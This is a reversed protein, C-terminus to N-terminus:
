PGDVVVGTTGSAAGRVSSSDDVSAQRKDV